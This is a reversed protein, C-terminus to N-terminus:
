VLDGINQFAIFTFLMAMRLAPGPADIVGYDEATEIRKSRISENV